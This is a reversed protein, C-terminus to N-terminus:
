MKVCVTAAESGIAPSYCIAKGAPSNELTFVECFEVAQLIAVYRNPGMIKFKLLKILKIRYVRVNYRYGTNLKICFFSM